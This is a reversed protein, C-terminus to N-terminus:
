CLHEVRVRTTNSYSVLSSVLLLISFINFINFINFVAGWLFYNYVTSDRDFACLKM